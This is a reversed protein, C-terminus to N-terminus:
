SHSHQGVCLFPQRSLLLERFGRITDLSYDTGKLLPCPHLSAGCPLLWCLVRKYEERIDMGVLCLNLYGPYCLSTSVPSDRCRLTRFGCQCTRCWIMGRLRQAWPSPQDSFVVTPVNIGRGYVSLKWNLSDGLAAAEASNAYRKQTHNEESLWSKQSRELKSQLFCERFIEYVYEIFYIISDVRTGGLEKRTGWLM